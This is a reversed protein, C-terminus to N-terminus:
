PVVNSKYRKEGLYEVGYEDYIAKLKEKVEPELGKRYHWKLAYMGFHAHVATRFMGEFPALDDALGQGTGFAHIARETGSFAIGALAAERIYYVALGKSEPSANALRFHIPSNEGWAEKSQLRFLIDLAKDSGDYGLTKILERICHADYETNISEKLREEVYKILWESSRPDKCVAIWNLTTLRSLGFSPGQTAQQFPQKEFPLGEITVVSQLFPFLDFDEMKEWYEVSKRLPPFASSGSIDLTLENANRKDLGQAIAMDRVRCSLEYKEISEQIRDLENDPYPAFLVVLHLLWIM